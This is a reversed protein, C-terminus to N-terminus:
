RLSRKRPHHSSPRRPVQHPEDDEDDLHAAQFVVRELNLIRAFAHKMETKLETIRSTIWFACAGASGIVTLLITITETSM